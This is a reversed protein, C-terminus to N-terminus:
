STLKLLVGLRMDPAVEYGLTSKTNYREPLQEQGAGDKKSVEVRYYGWQVGERAEGELKFRGSGNGETTASAAKCSDGMFTEPILRVTAGELPTGDLSVTCGVNVRGIRSEVLKTLRAALEDASVKGDRNTDILKLASKLSPCDELEAADLVGDGNKDCQKIAKAAVAEPSIDPPSLDSGGGCGVLGCALCSSGLLFAWFRRRLSLVAM